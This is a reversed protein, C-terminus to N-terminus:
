FENKRDMIISMLDVSLLPTVEHLGEKGGDQGWSVGLPFWVNRRFGLTLSFIQTFPSVSETHVM